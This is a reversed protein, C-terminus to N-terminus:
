LRPRATAIETRHDAGTARSDVGIPGALFPANAELRQQHDLIHPTLDALIDRAPLLARFLAILQDDSLPQQFEGSLSNELAVRAQEAVDTESQSVQILFNAGVSFAGSDLAEIGAQYQQRAIYAPSQSYLYFGFAAFLGVVLLIGVLSKKNM